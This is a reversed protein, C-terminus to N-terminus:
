EAVRICVKGFHVASQFYNFAAPVQDFSFVKDVAPKIRNREFFATMQVFSERHGVFVGQLRIQRMLIARLELHASPGSLVGIISIQAGPTVANLSERLTHEGGVDIVHDMGHNDSSTRAWSGWAPQQRYNLTHAAGLAELKKQKEHSSSIAWVQAGHALAIQLAFVSVGGSGQVLVRDGDKLKGLTVLASWATLAACPLTAAEENSLYAPVPIVGVEPVVAYQQLMGPLPGGLTCHRILDLTPPGTTWGQVLAAAVRDGVRVHKIGAGVKVVEGVGDSVPILPLPQKPNYQGRVMRLDRANLSTALVRLLVDGPGVDPVPMEVPKMHQLGFATELQWARM